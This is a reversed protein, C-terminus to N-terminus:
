VPIGEVIGEAPAAADDFRDMLPKVASRPDSLDAITLGADPKYAWRAVFAAGGPLDEINPPTKLKPADYADLGFSLTLADELTIKVKAIGGEVTPDAVDEIINPRFVRNAKKHVLKCDAVAEGAMMRQFAEEDLRDKKAILVKILKRVNGLEEATLKTPDMTSDFNRMTGWVAPCANARNVPCFGCWEGVKLCQGPERTQAMAPLVETCFWEEVEEVDYSTWRVPGDPHPIRPQIIACIIKTPENGDGRMQESRDEYAYYGYMKTQPKKVDVLVGAGYKFDLIFIAVGPVELGVDGAGFAEPDLNSHLEREVFLIGTPWEKQLARVTDIALQVGEVMEADVVYENNGVCVIKGACQWADEGTQLCRALVAHAATGEEAEASSKNRQAEPLKLIMANSGVCNMWRDAGSPGVPSHRTDTLYIRNPDSM